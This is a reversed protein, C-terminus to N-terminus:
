AARGEQARAEFEAYVQEPDAESPGYFCTAMLVWYPDTTPDAADREINAKPPIVANRKPV